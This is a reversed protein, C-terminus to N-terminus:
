KGAWFDVVVVKEILPTVLAAFAKHDPHVLYDDRDKESAFSLLFSHTLGENLKEPSNNTGWEFDKIQSIKGPLLRFADEASKVAAASANDKFKFFVAHRLVTAGNTQAIGALSAMCAILGTFIMKKM